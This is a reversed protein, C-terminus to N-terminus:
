PSALAFFENPSMSPTPFRRETEQHAHHVHVHDRIRRHSVELILLVVSLLDLAIYLLHM